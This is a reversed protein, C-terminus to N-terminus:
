LCSGPFHPLAPARVSAQRPTAAVLFRARARIRTQLGRFTARSLSEGRGCRKRGGADSRSLTAPTAYRHPRSQARRLTTSTRSGGPALYNLHPLWRDTMGLTSCSCWVLVLVLTEEESPPQRLAPTPSNLRAPYPLRESAVVKEPCAIQESFVFLGDPNTLSAPEPLPIRQSRRVIGSSKPSFFKFVAHKSKGIEFPARSLADTRTPKLSRQMQFDRKATPRGKLAFRDAINEWAQLGSEAFGVDRGNL